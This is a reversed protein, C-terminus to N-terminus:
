NDHDCVSLCVCVCLGVGTFVYERAKAPIIVAETVSVPAKTSVLETSVMPNGVVHRKYNKYPSGTSGKTEREFLALM